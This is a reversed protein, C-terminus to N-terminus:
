EAWFDVVVFNGRYAEWGPFPRAADLPQASIAPAATGPKLVQAGAVTGLFLLIPLVCKM